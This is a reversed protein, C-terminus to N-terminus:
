QKRTHYALFPFYVFNLCSLHICKELATDNAQFQFSMRALIKCVDLFFQFFYVFEFSRLLRALGTAKAKADDSQGNASVSDLHALLCPWNQKIAKAAREYHPIWRTGTVNAPKLVKINFAAGTEKLNYWNLPSNSYFKYISSLLGDVKKLYAVQNITDKIGLELRHAVCHVSLLHPVDAKIRTVVGSRVGVMVAAGDTSMGVTKMRWEDPQMDTEDLFAKDIAAVIGHADSKALAQISLFKTVPRGDELYRVYILEEDTISVDTSSDSLVSFMRAQRLKNAFDEKVTEAIFHTFTAAQKDNKYSKGTNVGNREQLDCLGVFDRFPREAKVLYYVTHFLKVLHTVSEKEMNILCAEMPATGPQSVSTNHALKATKHGDSKEHKKFGDLRFSNNGTKSGFLSKDKAFQRCYKCFM